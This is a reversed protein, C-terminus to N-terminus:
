EAEIFEMLTSFFVFKNLFEAPVNSQLHNPSTQMYENYKVISSAIYQICYTIGENPSDLVKLVSYSIFHGTSMMEKLYEFKLWKLWNDHIEEDLIITVNYLIM